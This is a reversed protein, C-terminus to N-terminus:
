EGRMQAEVCLHKKFKSESSSTYNVDRRQAVKFSAVFKWFVSLHQNWKVDGFATVKVDLCSDHWEPVHM